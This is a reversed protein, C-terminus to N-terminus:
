RLRQLVKDFNWNPKQGLWEVDAAQLQRTLLIVLYKQFLLIANVTKRSKLLANSM